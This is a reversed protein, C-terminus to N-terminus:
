RCVRQVHCSRRGMPGRRCVTVSRCSRRHRRYYQADDVLNTSAAANNIGAGAGISAAQSGTTAALGLGFALVTSLLLIRM